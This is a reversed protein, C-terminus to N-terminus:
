CWCLHWCQIDKSLGMSFYISCYFRYSDLFLLWKQDSSIFPSSAKRKKRFAMPLDNTHMLVIDEDDSNIWMILLKNNITCGKQFTVITIEAGTRSLKVNDAEYHITDARPQNFAWSTDVHGSRWRWPIEEFALEPRKQAQRWQFSVGEIPKRDSIKEM